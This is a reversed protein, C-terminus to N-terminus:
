PYILPATYGARRTSHCVVGDAASDRRLGSALGAFQESRENGGRRSLPGRGRLGERWAGLRQPPRLAEM